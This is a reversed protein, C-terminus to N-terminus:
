FNKVSALKVREFFNLVFGRTREDWKPKRNSYVEMKDCALNKYINAIVDFNKISEFHSLPKGNEDLKPL